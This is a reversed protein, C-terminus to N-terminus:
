VRSIVGRSIGTMREIDRISLRNNRLNRIITNRDQKNQLAIDSLKEVKAIELMKRKLQDDTLRIKDSLEFNEDGLIEHFEKFAKKATDRDESFMDLAFNIDVIDRTNDSIYINYSSWLYESLKKTINAKLPNQHIYRILTLYYKDNEIPESKYRNGILSGSRQYKFNFWSVYMSLIKHMFAKIDGMNKEKLFLHVHNSMLCYAYISFKYEDQVREIIKLMKEFDKEEEFLYQRNIGRIIINYMGSKSIIRAPRSM